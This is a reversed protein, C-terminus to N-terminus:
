AAAGAGVAARVKDKERSILRFAREEDYLELFVNARLRTLHKALMRVEDISLCCKGKLKPPYLFKLLSRVLARANGTRVAIIHSDWLDKDGHKALHYPDSAGVDLSVEARLWMRYLLNRKVNGVGYNSPNTDAGETGHRWEVLPHFHIVALYRWFGIDSLAAILHSPITAHVVSCADTEFRGGEPSRFRIKEPYRAKIKELKDRLKQIFACDFEAGDGRIGVFRDEDIDVDHRRADLIQLAERRELIPYKMM